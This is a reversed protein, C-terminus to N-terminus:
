STTWLGASHARPEEIDNIFFNFLVSGLVAAKHVASMAPRWRSMFENVIVRQSHNDLWSNLWWTIWGEFGYREV